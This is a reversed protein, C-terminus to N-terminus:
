KHDRTHDRRVKRRKPGAEFFELQVELQSPCAIDEEGKFHVGIVIAEEPEESKTRHPKTGAQTRPPAPSCANACARATWAVYFHSRVRAGVAVGALSTADRRLSAVQM